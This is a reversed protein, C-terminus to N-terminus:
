TSSAFELVDNLYSCCRLSAKIQLIPTAYSQTWHSLIRDLSLIPDLLKPNSGTASFQAWHSLIPDLPQPNPGTASFQTWHSLIPNLPKPNPETAWSQAWHNLIQDPPQPNPGTASSKTWHTYHKLIRDLTESHCPFNSETDGITREEKM